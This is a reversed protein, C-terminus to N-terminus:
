KGKFIKRLLTGFSSSQHPIHENMNHESWLKLLGLAATFEPGALEDAFPGSYDHKGIRVPVGLVEHAIEVIGKLNAMGGTLIIGAALREPGLWETLEQKLANLMEEVRAEITMSLIHPEIADEGKGGADNMSVSSAKDFEVQVASGIEHKVRTASHMPIRFMKAIDRDIASGGNPITRLLRPAGTAFVAVDCSDCGWDLTAVGLDREDETTLMSGTALASSLLRRTSLKAGDQCSRLNALANKRASVVYAEAELLNGSMGLPHRIGAHGDIAFQQELVHLIEMDQPLPFAQLTDLALEIDADTVLNGQIKVHAHKEEGCMHEGSVGAVAGHTIPGGAMLEAQQVAGSLAKAASNIDNLMSNAYGQSAVSGWGSVEFSTGVTRGALVVFKSAGLDVAAYLNQQEM